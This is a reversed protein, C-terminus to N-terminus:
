EGLDMPLVTVLDDPGDRPSQLHLWLVYSLRGRAFVVTFDAAFGLHDDIM